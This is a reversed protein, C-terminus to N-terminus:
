TFPVGSIRVQLIRPVDRSLVEMTSRLSGMTAEACEHLEDLSQEEREDDLVFLPRSAGRTWFRLAQGRRENPGGRALVLDGSGLVPRPEAGGEELADAGGATPADPVEEALPAPKRDGAELLPAEAMGADAAVPPEMALVAVAEASASALEPLVDPPSSAAAAGATERPVVAAEVFPDAESAQGVAVRVAQAGQKPADQSSALRGAHGPAASAASAPATKLVKRPALGTSGHRRKSPLFPFAPDPCV